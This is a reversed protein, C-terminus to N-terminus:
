YKGYDGMCRGMVNGFYKYETQGQSHANVFLYTIICSLGSTVNM